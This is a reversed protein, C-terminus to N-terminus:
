WGADWGVGALSVCGADRSVDSGTDWDELVLGSVSGQFFGGDATADARSVTFIGRVALYDHACNGRSPLCDESYLVCETCTLWSAGSLAVSLPFAPASTSFLEFDLFDFRGIAGSSAPRQYYADDLAPGTGFPPSYQGLLPEAGTFAIARCAPAGADFGADQGADVDGGGGAAVQGGGGSGGGGAVGGGAGGAFDGGGGGGAGGDQQFFTGSPCGTLALAFLLTAWFPAASRAKPTSM